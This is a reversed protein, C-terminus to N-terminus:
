RPTTMQWVPYGGSPKIHWAADFTGAAIQTTRDHQYDRPAKLQITPHDAILSIARGSELLEAARANSLRFSFHDIAPNSQHSFVRTSLPDFPAAKARARRLQPYCLM